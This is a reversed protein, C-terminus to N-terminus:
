ASFFNKFWIVSQKTFWSALLGCSSFSGNVQDQIVHFIKVHYVIEASFHWQTVHIKIGINLMEEAAAFVM